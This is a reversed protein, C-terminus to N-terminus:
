SLWGGFRHEAPYQMLKKSIMWSLISFKLQFCVDQYGINRQIKELLPNRLSWRAFGWFIDGPGSGSLRAKRLWNLFDGPSPKQKMAYCVTSPESIRCWIISPQYITSLHNISPQYITSLHNIIGNNWIIELTEVHKLMNWGDTSHPPNRLVWLIM